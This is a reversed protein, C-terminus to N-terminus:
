LYRTVKKDTPMVTKALRVEGDITDHINLIKLSKTLDCNSEKTSNSSSLTFIAVISVFIINKLSM